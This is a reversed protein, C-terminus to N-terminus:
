QNEEYTDIEIYEKEEDYDPEFNEPHYMKEIELDYNNIVM